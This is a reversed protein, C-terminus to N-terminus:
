WIIKWPRSINEPIRFSMLSDMGLVTWKFDEPMYHRLFMILATMADFGTTGPITIPGIIKVHKAM